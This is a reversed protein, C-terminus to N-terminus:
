ISRGSKKKSRGFINGGSVRNEKGLTAYYAQVTLLNNQCFVYRKVSRQFHGKISPKISYNRLSNVAQQWGFLGVRELWIGGDSRIPPQIMCPSNRQEQAACASKHFDL